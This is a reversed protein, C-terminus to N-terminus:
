IHKVLCRTLNLVCLCLSSSRSRENFMVSPLSWFKQLSRQLMIGYEILQLFLQFMLGCKIAYLELCDCILLSSVKVLVTWYAMSWLSPLQSSERLKQKKHNQLNLLYFIFISIKNPSKTVLPNIGIIKQSWGIIKDL